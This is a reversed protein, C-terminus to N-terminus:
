SINKIVNKFYNLIFVSSSFFYDTLNVAECICGNKGSLIKAPGLLPRGVGTNDVKM